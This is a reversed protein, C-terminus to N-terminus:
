RPFQALHVSIWRRYGELEGEEADEVQEQEHDRAAGELVQASAARDGAPLLPGPHMRDGTAPDGCGVRREDGDLATAQGRALADVQEAADRDAAGLLRVHPDGVAERRADVAADV